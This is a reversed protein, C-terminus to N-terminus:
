TCLLAKSHLSSKLRLLNDHWVLTNPLKALLPSSTEHLKWPKTRRMDSILNVHLRRLSTQVAFHPHGLNDGLEEEGSMDDVAAASQATEM